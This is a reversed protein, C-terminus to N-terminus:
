PAPSQETSPPTASKAVLVLEAWKQATRFAEIVKTDGGTRSMGEAHSWLMGILSAARWGEVTVGAAMLPNSGEAEEDM